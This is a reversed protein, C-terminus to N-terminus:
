QAEPASRAMRRLAPLDRVVLRRGDREVLGAEELEGLTANVTQRTSGILTALEGQTLDIDLALSAGSPRGFDDALELLIGALRARVNRFVLTEVRSEIRKMRRGIQRTIALVIAPRKEITRQFVAVPIQWVRAPHVAVAFSDRAFEGFAPLEGFVEGPAVYGFSTEAGDPSLRYIRVLGRELLYLSRPHSAPRFVTAGREHDRQSSAQRLEGLEEPSLEELWDVARLQWVADDLVAGHCPPHRV